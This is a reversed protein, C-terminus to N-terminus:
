RIDEMENIIENLIRQYRDSGAMMIGKSKSKSFKNMLRMMEEEFEELENENLEKYPKNFM